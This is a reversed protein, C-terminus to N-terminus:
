KQEEIKKCIECEEPNREKKCIYYPADGNGHEPAKLEYDKCSLCGLSIGDLGKPLKNEGTDM